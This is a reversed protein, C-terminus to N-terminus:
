TRTLKPLSWVVCLTILASWTSPVQQHLPVTQCPCAAIRMLTEDQAVVSSVHLPTQGSHNADSVPEGCSLCLAEKRAAIASSITSGVFPASGLPTPSM